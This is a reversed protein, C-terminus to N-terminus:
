PVLGPTAELKGKAVLRVEGSALTLFHLWYYWRGAELLASKEAVHDIQLLGGTADTIVIEGDDSTLSFVADADADEPSEKVHLVSTSGSLPVPTNANEPDIIAM